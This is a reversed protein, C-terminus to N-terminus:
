ERECVRVREREGVGVGDMRREEREAGCNAPWMEGTKQILTRSWMRTEPEPSQERRRQFTAM